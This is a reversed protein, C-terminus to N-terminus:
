PSFGLGDNIAMRSLWCVRFPMAFIGGRIIFVAMGTEGMGVKGRLRPFPCVFRQAHKVNFPVLAPSDSTIGRIAQGRSPTPRSDLEKILFPKRKQSFSLILYILVEKTQLPHIKM